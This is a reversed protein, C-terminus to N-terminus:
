QFIITALIQFIFYVAMDVIKVVKMNMSRFFCVSLHMECSLIKLKLACEQKFLGLLMMLLRFGSLFFPRLLFESAEKTRTFDPRSRLFEPMASIVGVGAKGLSSSVSLAPLAALRLLLLTTPDLLFLTCVGLTTWNNFLTLYLQSRKSTHCGVVFRNLLLKFHIQKSVNSVFISRWYISLVLVVEHKLHQIACIYM